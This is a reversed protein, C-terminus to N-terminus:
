PRLSAAAALWTSRRSQASRPHVSFGAPAAFPSATAALGSRPLSVLAHPTGMKPQLPAVSLESDGSAAGRRRGNAVTAGPAQPPSVIGLGAARAVMLPIFAAAFAPARVEGSRQSGSDRLAGSRPPPTPFRAFTPRHASPPVGRPQEQVCRHLVLIIAGIISLFLLLPADMAADSPLVLKIRYKLPLATDFNVYIARWSCEPSSHAANWALPVLPCSDLASSSQAVNRPVFSPSPSPQSAKAAAGAM